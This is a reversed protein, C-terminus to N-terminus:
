QSAAKRIFEEEFIVLLVFSGILWIIFLTVAKKLIDSSM